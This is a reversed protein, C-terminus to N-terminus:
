QSAKLLATAREMAALAETSTSAPSCRNMAARLADVVARHRKYLATEKNREDESRYVNYTWHHPKSSAIREGTKCVFKSNGSSMHVTAGRISTVTVYVRRSNVDVLLLEMGKEYNIPELM